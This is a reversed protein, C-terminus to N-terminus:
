VVSKRDLRGAQFGVAECRVPPRHRGIEIRCLSGLPASLGRVEVTMGVLGTVRGVQRVPDCCQLQQNASTWALDLM